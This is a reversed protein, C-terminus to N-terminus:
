MCHEQVSDKIAKYPGEWRAELKGVEGAPNSKKLVLDGVQFERTDYKKIILEYLDDEILKWEFRQEKEKEQILDLEQARAEDNRKPYSQIRTSTQGIEVPLVAESGYVLSYPTEKTATMFNVDKALSYWKGCM